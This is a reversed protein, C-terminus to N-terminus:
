MTSGPWGSAVKTRHGGRDLRARVGVVRESADVVIERAQDRLVPPGSGNVQSTSSRTAPVSTNASSASCM